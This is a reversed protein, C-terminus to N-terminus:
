FIFIFLLKFICFSSVHLADIIAQDFIYQTDAKKQNMAVTEAVILETFKCACKEIFRWVEEEDKKSNKNVLKIEKKSSRINGKKASTSASASSSKSIENNISEVCGECFQSIEKLMFRSRTSEVRLRGRHRPQITSTDVAGRSAAKSSKKGRIMQKKKKNSKEFDEEVSANSSDNENDDDSSGNLSIDDSIKSSDQRSRKM